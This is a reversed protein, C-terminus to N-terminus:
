TLLGYGHAREEVPVAGIVDFRKDSDKWSSLPFYYNANFMMFHNAYEAGVSGRQHKATLDYDYFANLGYFSSSQTLSRGIVLALMLLIVVILILHMM